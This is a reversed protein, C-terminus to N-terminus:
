ISCVMTQTYMVVLRGYLIHVKWLALVNNGYQIVDSIRFGEINKKKNCSQIVQSQSMHSWWIVPTVILDCKTVQTVM